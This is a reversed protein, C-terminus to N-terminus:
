ILQWLRVHWYSFRVNCSVIVEECCSRTVLVYLKIKVKALWIVVLNPLIIFWCLSFKSQLQEDPWLRYNLHCVKIVIDGSKYFRYCAFKAFHFVLIKKSKINIDNGHILIQPMIEVGTLEIKVLRSLISSIM